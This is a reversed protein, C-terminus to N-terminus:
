MGGTPNFADAGAAAQAEQVNKLAASQAQLARADGDQQQLAMQKEAQAAKGERLTEVDRKDRIVGFERYSRGALQMVEDGDIWDVADPDLQAFGTAFQQLQIVGALRTSAAQQVHLMSQYEIRVNAGELDEPVDSLGFPDEGHYFLEDKARERCIAFVAEIMPDLMDNNLQTLIPGLLAIKESALETVETATMDRRDRGMQLSILMAFLDTFFCRDLAQHCEAIATQAAEVGDQVEYLPQVPAAGGTASTPAAYYSVSGPDSSISGRMYEPALLPPEEIRALMKSRKLTYSQLMKAEPLGERGCGAGYATGTLHEWRPAVVPNYSFSRVALVRDADSVSLDTWHFSAFLKGADRPIGARHAPPVSDVPCIYNYVRVHKELEGDKALKRVPEPCNEEGYEDLVQSVTYETRRLLTDVRGRRDEAIWYAGEDLLIARIVDAEDPVLLFCATGFAPLHKFVDILTPNLNSGNMVATLTQTTTDLYTRNKRSEGAKPDVCVLWWWPRAQNTIGSQLGAAARTVLSRPYPDFIHEDDALASEANPDEAEFLAKGLTPTFHYHIEKWLPEHPRRAKELSEKRSLLWKILNTRDVSGNM